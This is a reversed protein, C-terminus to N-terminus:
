LGETNQKLKQWMYTLFKAEGRAKQMISDMQCAVDEAFAACLSVDFSAVGCMVGM